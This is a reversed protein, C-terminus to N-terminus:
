SNKHHNKFNSPTKGTINKFYKNFSTLNNFGVDLAIKLITSDRENPDGFRVKAENVRYGNIFDFFNLSLHENIVQSLHNTHIDLESALNSLKLDSRLYPKENEMYALIKKLYEKSLQPTLSSKEYKKGMKSNEAPGFILEPQKFAKFTIIYFLIVIPFIYIFDM